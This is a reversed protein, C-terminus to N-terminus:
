RRRKIQDVGVCKAKKGFDGIPGKTGEGKHAYNGEAREKARVMSNQNHVSKKRRGIVTKKLKKFRNIKGERRKKKTSQIPGGGGGTVNVAGSRQKGTPLDSNQHRYKKVTGGIKM